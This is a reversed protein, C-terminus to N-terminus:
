KGKLMEDLAAHGTVAAGQILHSYRMTMSPSKHGLVSGIELLTSGNQALISACTHRLDHWHFDVLGSAKRIRQWRQELYSQKLPQGDDLAFVHAPSVVKAKKLKELAAVAQVTVHVRRPSKNKTQLLTVSQRNFDVDAWKLRLLESQRIGTAISVLIAAKVLPDSDAAKLLVTLENPNLYRTRGPPEPMLLRTPWIREQPIWGASRGWNWITRMLALSRNITAPALEDQAQKGDRSRTRGFRLKDRAEFLSAPGFELVKVGGYNLVWFQALAAYGAYSRLVQVGPDALYEKILGGITLASMKPRAGRQGQALLEKVLPAAWEEADAFSKFTKSIRKFKPVRVLTLISKTGDRNKRDKRVHFTVYDIAPTIIRKSM